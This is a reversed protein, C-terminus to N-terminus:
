RGLTAAPHDRAFDADNWLSEFHSAWYDYGLGGKKFEFSITQQSPKGYLYPGTYLYDDQRYYSQIMASNCFKLQVGEPSPSMSKLREVWHVLDLITQTIQGKVGGEDQERQTVYQSYPDVTLIRVRLGQRVKAEMTAGQSHRFALFGFGMLDLERKLDTLTLDARTNMAARTRFIGVIGWHEIMDQIERYRTLYRSSLFVVVASAVISSGVSILIVSTNEDYSRFVMGAIILVAGSLFSVLNVLEANLDELRYFRRM